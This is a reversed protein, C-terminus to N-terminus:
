RKVTFSIANSKGSATTVTVSVNGYTAKTPVRCKIQTGSWAVYTACTKSGFKVFSTGRTPGFGSGSITVLAGRKAFAPSLRTITSTDPVTSITAGYIDRNSDGNRWDEWVVTNDSVQPSTADGTSSVRLETKSALDYGWIDQGSFGGDRNDVWVVTNGSVDPDEQNKTNLCIPFETRTTLDYGWIDPYGQGNREDQWVVINGSVAPLTQSGPATCIPFETHANLDYGYIDFGTRNQTRGDQWVVISGSVDPHSQSGSSTCIGSNTKTALDYALISSDWDHNWAITNGSVAPQSGSYSGTFVPFETKTILDCGWLGFSTRDDEWVVINGSIAPAQVMWAHSHVTSETKTLLDYSYIGYDGNRKDCYVVTNGWIAPTTQRGALTCIPFEGARLAAAGESLPPWLALVSLLLAALTVLIFGARSVAHRQSVIVGKTASPLVGDRAYAKLGETFDTYRDHDSVDRKRNSELDVM